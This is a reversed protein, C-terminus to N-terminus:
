SNVEQLKKILEPIKNKPVNINCNAVTNRTTIPHLTVYQGHDTIFLGSMKVVGNRGLATMDYPKDYVIDEM